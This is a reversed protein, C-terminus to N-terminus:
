YKNQIDYLLVITQRSEFHNYHSFLYAEKEPAKGILMFSFVPVLTSDYSWSDNLDQYITLSNNECLLSIYEKV